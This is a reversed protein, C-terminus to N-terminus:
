FSRQVYFVILSRNQYSFITRLEEIEREGCGGDMVFEIIDVELVDGLDIQKEVIGYGGALGFWM